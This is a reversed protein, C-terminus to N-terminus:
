RTSNVPKFQNSLVKGWGVDVRSTDVVLTFEVHFFFFSCIKKAGTRRKIQSSGAWSGAAIEMNASAVGWGFPQM